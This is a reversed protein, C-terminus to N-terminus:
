KFSLQHCSTGSPARAECHTGDGHIGSKLLAMNLATMGLHGRANVDLRPCRLLARVTSLHSRVVASMLPTMGSSDRANADLDQPSSLSMNNFTCCLVLVLNGLQILFPLSLRIQNQWMNESM